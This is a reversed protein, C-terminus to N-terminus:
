AEVGDKGAAILIAAAGFDMGRRKAEKRAKLIYDATKSALVAKLAEEAAGDTGEAGMLDFVTGLDSDRFAEKAKKRLQIAVAECNGGGVGFEGM